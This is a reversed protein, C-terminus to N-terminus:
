RGEDPSAPNTPGNFLPILFRFGRQPHIVIFHAFIGAPLMVHQETHERVEEQPLDFDTQPFFAGAKVRGWIRVNNSTAKGNRFYVRSSTISNTAQTWCRL